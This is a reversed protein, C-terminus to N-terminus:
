LIRMSGGALAVTLVALILIATFCYIFYRAPVSGDYVLLFEYIRTNGARDSVELRYNGAATLTGNSNIEENNYYVRVSDGTGTTTYTVPGEVSEKTVDKDFKLGPPLSDRLFRFSWGPARQSEFFIEYTGDKTADYFLENRLPQEIGNQLVEKIRFDDPARILDLAKPEGDMVITFGAPTKHKLRGLGTVEETVVEFYYSGPLDAKFELPKEEAENDSVEFDEEGFLVEDDRTLKQLWAGNECTVTVATNSYSGLPVDMLFSGGDEKTYRYRDSGADYSLTIDKDKIELAFVKDPIMILVLAAMGLMLKLKKM